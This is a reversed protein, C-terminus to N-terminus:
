GEPLPLWLRVCVGGLSGRCYEMRGACGDVSRAVARLGLGTGEQIRGFGPGSDDIVLLVRDQDYGTEIRVRGVPGAARTANSLLNAIIRRIAVPNGRTRVPGAPWALELEGAYTVREAAVADDALAVLDVVPAGAGPGEGDGLCDQIMDALWQAQEVIQKLRARVNDPLGPQALAAGALAFMGGLAQRMDHCTERLRQDESTGAVATASSPKGDYEGKHV